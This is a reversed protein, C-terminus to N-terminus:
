IHTWTTGAKIHGITGVQVPYDRAISKCSEGKELRIKIALVQVGNLKSSPCKDGKETGKTPVRLGTKYAHLANESCTCWELNAIQNNSKIGDKHNIQKKNDKNELFAKAVLSHVTAKKRGPHLMVYLYGTTFLTPSLVIGQKSGSKYFRPLSRVRGQSSVEYLGEWGVVPMWKETM